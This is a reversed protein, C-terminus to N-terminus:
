ALRRMAQLMELSMDRPTWEQAKQLAARRYVEDRLKPAEKLANELGRADASNYSIAVDDTLYRSLCGM